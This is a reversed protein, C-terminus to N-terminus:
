KPGGIHYYANSPVSALFTAVKPWVRLPERGPRGRSFQLSLEQLMALHLEGLAGHPKSTYRYIQNIAGDVLVVVSTHWTPGYWAAGATGAHVEQARCAGGSCGM